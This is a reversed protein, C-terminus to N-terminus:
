EVSKCAQTKRNVIIDAWFSRPRCFATDGAARCDDGAQSPDGTRLVLFDGAQYLRLTCHQPSDPRDAKARLLIGVPAPQQKLDKLAISCSQDDGDGSHESRSMALSKVRGRALALALKHTTSLGFEEDRHRAACRWRGSVAGLKSHLEDFSLTRARAGKANRWTGSWHGNKVRGSFSGTRTNTSPTFEEMQFFGNPNLKGDLRIQKGQTLYFYWGSVTDGNRSLDLFVPKSGITGYLRIPQAAAVGCLLLAAAVLATGRM